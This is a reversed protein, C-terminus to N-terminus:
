KILDLADNVSRAVGAIGGVERVGSLFPEQMKGMRGTPTKVEPALFVGVTKGVMDQTIVTPKIGIIDSSGVCLGFPMKHAGALTVQDGSQHIVKGMWAQGVNNRWVVCGAQSLALLIEQQLRTEANM